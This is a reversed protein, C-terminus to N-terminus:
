ESLGPDTIRTPRPEPGTYEGKGLQGSLACSTSGTPALYFMTWVMQNSKDFFSSIVLTSDEPFLRPAMVYGDLSAPEGKSNMKNLAESARDRDAPTACYREPKSSIVETPVGAERLTAALGAVDDLEEWQVLLEVSGDSNTTVAYAPAPGNQEGNWLTSMALAVAVAAGGFAMRRRWVQGSTRRQGAPSRGSLEDPVDRPTALIGALMTQAQTSAPDARWDAAPDAARLSRDRMM